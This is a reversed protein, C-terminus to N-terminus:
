WDGNDGLSNLIGYLDIRGKINNSSMLIRFGTVNQSSNGTYIGASMVTSLADLSTNHYASSVTTLANISTHHYSSGTANMTFYYPTFDVFCEMNHEMGTASGSYNSPNIQMSATSTSGGGSTNSSSLRHRLYVTKYNGTTIISGNHFVQMLLSGSSGTDSKVGAIRLMYKKYKTLDIVGSTTFDVTASSTHTTGSLHVLGGTSISSPLATVSSLTNNNARLIAM